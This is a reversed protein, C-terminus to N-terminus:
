RAGQLRALIVARVRVCADLSQKANSATALLGPYRWIVAGPELVDLDAQAVGYDSEALAVWAKVEPNM